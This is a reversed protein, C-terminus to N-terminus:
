DVFWDDDHRLEGIAMWNARVRAIRTDSWTKFVIEFGTESVSDAFVDMRTNTNHDFDWMSLGVQVSPLNRFPEKFLIKNRVQRAGDEAWM